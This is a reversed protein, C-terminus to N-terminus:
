KFNNDIHFATTYRYIANSERIQGIAHNSLM